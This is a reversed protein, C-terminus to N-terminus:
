RKKTFLLYNQRAKLGNVFRQPSKLRDELSHLRFNPRKPDDYSSPEKLTLFAWVPGAKEGARGGVKWTLERPLPPNLSLLLAYKKDTTRNLFPPFKIPNKQFVNSITENVIESISMEFITAYLLQHQFM